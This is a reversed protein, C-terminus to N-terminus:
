LRMDDDEPDTDFDCQDPVADNSLYRRESHNYIREKGINWPKSGYEEPFVSSNMNKLSRCPRTIVIFLALIIVQAVFAVSVINRVNVKWPSEPPSDLPEHSDYVDEDPLPKEPNMVPEPIYSDDNLLALNGHDLNDCLAISALYFLSLLSYCRAM